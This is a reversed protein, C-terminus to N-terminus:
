LGIVSSEGVAYVREGHRPRLSSGATFGSFAPLVLRDGGVVWFAAAKVPYQGSGPLTVAPHHHGGIAPVADGELPDHRLAAGGTSEERSLLNIGMGGCVRELREVGLKRDHNGPVLCIEASQEATFRGVRDILPDNVGAPAHLLDGLIIVRRASTRDVARCLRSLQEELDGRPIAAGATRMTQAKGWHTDGLLLTEQATLLATREPMLLLPIGGLEIQSDRPAKTVRTNLDGAGM